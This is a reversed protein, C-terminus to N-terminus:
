RAREPRAGRWLGPLDGLHPRAPADAAEREAAVISRRARARQSFDFAGALSRGRTAGGRAASGGTTARHLRLISTTDLPTSDVYGRRAYPSVLLAPVRFGLPGPSAAARPRVLRGVRRLDVHVGLQGLRQQAGPGHDAGKDLTEGAAIRGPPHESAGAPAIYAVAPLRGRELDEYYEDLDVIHGFRPDRRLPVARLAQASGRPGARTTTRSTSSGRSGASGALGARLDESRGALLHNAVSGGPSAAFFRDFLVYEDAVNWYFPLDRDDYYGMVSRDVSQRDVSAARVFGDM